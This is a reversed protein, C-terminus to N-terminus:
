TAYGADGFYNAITPIEPRLLARGSSVNIAGNRAADIGTLLQGRTPTCMPAVHYDTLRLSEDYLSDLHPTQLVPNGHVSLEPYGQDDTMVVIVNPREAVAENSAANSAFCAIFGFLWIGRVVRNTRNM